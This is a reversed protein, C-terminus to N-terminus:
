LFRNRHLEETELRLKHFVDQIKDTILKRAVIEKVGRFKLDEIFDNMDIPKGVNLTVKKGFKLYYPETNPLVSDMGEHWMPLIIPVRPSEYIIRGVGWKLRMEEKTMNVKGEPFVHVWEGLKLKQICVDVASQHVGNGRIIPICKGYMFFLSHYINTFCIDHAALSWRIKFTNCVYRMPLVGWLGPDDFCSYHNSVTVLPTGPPRKGIADILRQKNYVHTKNMLVLVIKSFLGVAFITIQSVVYWFGSPRLMRPFIWDIDYPIHTPPTLPTSPTSPTTPLSPSSLSPLTPRPLSPLSTQQEVRKDTLTQQPQKTKQRVEQNKIKHNHMEPLSKNHFKKKKCDDLHQQNKDAISSSSSKFFRCDHHQNKVYNLLFFMGRRCCSEPLHMRNNVKICRYMIIHTLM